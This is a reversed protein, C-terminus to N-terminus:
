NKKMNKLTQNTQSLKELDNGVGVNKKLFRILTFVSPNKGLDRQIGAIVAKLSKPNDKVLEEIKKVEQENDIRLIPPRGRGKGTQLGTIGNDEYRDFWRIVTTDQVQYFDSIEQVSKGQHSLLLYHARQRVTNKKSTKFLNILEKEEKEQLNIFRKKGQM